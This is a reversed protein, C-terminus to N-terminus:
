EETIEEETSQYETTAGFQGASVPVEGYIKRKIQTNAFVVRFMEKVLAVKEEAGELKQKDVAAQLEADRLSQERKEIDQIKEIRARLSKIEEKTKEHTKEQLIRNEELYDKERKTKEAEAVYDAIAQAQIAPLKEKVIQLIEMEMFKEKVVNYIKLFLGAPSSTDPHKTPLGM